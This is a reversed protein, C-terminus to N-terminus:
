CSNIADTSKNWQDQAIYLLILNTIEIVIQWSAPMTPDTNVAVDTVLQYILKVFGSKVGGPQINAGIHTISYKRIPIDKYKIHVLLVVSLLFTKM